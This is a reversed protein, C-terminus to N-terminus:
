SLRTPEIKALHPRVYRFGAAKELARVSATWYAEAASPAGFTSDAIQQLSGGRERLWGGLQILDRAAGGIIQVGLIEGTERNAVLKLLGERPQRSRGHALDDFSASGTVYPVDLRACAEETLGLCILGRGHTAMFNVHEATVREAAVCLDGENERDEDDLMVVMEGARLAALISEVADLAVDTGPPAPELRAHAGAPRATGDSAKSSDM